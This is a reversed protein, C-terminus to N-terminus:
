IQRMALGVAIGYFHAYGALSKASETEMQVKSFPNGIVTEIGLLKTLTSAAEPIAASGGGLIVQKPVDGREESSYFHIAKRIEDALIRFVPDIVGKVKGELKTPSLGYTRKYEEAMSQEIELSQAVARTLADGATPTSRSFLLEGNKAIAIDTSRAGFDLLLSTTDSPALSRVLAMLETEVAVLSLGAMEVLKAYKEVLEKPAAVLLVLVSPPNDNERRELVKHQIIAESVPIPIYEEAEWRVASAIESDTLLPYKITRTFSNAEPIAIAVEKSSIRAEHFIRKIADSLVVYDKDEKYFEPTKGKHAVIGSAHLRFKDREKALEVVKITKSGIDLGVSM